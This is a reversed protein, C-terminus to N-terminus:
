DHVSFSSAPTAASVAAAATSSSVTTCHLAISSKLQKGLALGVLMLAALIKM